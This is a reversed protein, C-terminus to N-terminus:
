ESKAVTVTASAEYGDAQLALVAAPSEPYADDLRDKRMRLVLLAELQSVVVLETGDLTARLEGEFGSGEIIIDKERRPSGGGRHGPSQANSPERSCPRL